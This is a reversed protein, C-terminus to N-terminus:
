APLNPSDARIAAPPVWNPELFKAAIASLGRWERGAGGVGVTYRLARGGRLGFYLRRESTRIVISGVADGPPFSVREGASLPM